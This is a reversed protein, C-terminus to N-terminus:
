MQHITSGNNTLTSDYNNSSSDCVAVTASKTAMSPAPNLTLSTDPMCTFAPSKPPLVFPSIGAGSDFVIDVDDVSFSAGAVGGGGGVVVAVSGGDVVSGVDGGSGVVVDGGVSGVGGVTGVAVCGIADCCAM